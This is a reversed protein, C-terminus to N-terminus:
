RSLRSASLAGLISLQGGNLFPLNLTLGSGFSVDRRKTERTFLASGGGFDNENDSRTWSISTMRHQMCNVSSAEVPVTNNAATILDGVNSFWDIMFSWPFLEWATAVLNEANMGLVLRAALEAKEKDNKFAATGIPKWRITGWSRASTITHIRNRFVIGLGSEIALDSNSDGVGSFVDVRRRLGGNSYLRDLEDMRKSISSQAGVLSALDRITPEIAFKYSLYADASEKIRGKRRLVKSLKKKKLAVQGALRIPNIFDKAEAIFTPVSVVPRNPNSRAKVASEIQIVNPWGLGVHGDVARNWHCDYNKYSRYYTPYTIYRLGNLGTMSRTIREINLDHDRQKGLFDTCISEYSSYSFNQQILKPALSVRQAVGSARSTKYRSRQRSAVM